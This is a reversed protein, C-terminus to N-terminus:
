CDRAILEVDDARITASLVRPDGDRKVLIPDEYRVRVCRKMPMIRIVIADVLRGDINAEVQDFPEITMGDEYELIM